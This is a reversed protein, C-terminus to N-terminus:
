PSKADMVNDVAGRGKELGHGLAGWGQGAWNSGDLGVAWGAGDLGMWGLGMWGLGLWGLQVWEPQGDLGIPGDKGHCGHHVHKYCEVVCGFLPVHIIAHIKAHNTTHKFEARNEKYFM